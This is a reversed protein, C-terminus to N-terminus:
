DAYPNQLWIADLDSLLVDEGRQLLVSVIELRKMWIVHRVVPKKKVLKRWLTVNIDQSPLSNLIAQQTAQQVMKSYEDHCTVNLGQVKESVDGDICVVMLQQTVINHQACVQTYYYLWNRFLEAFASDVFLLIKHSRSVGDVQALCHHISAHPIIHSVKKSAESSYENVLLMQPCTPNMMFASLVVLSLMRWVFYALMGSTGQLTVVRIGGNNEAHWAIM